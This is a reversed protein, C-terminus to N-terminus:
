IFYMNHTLVINKLISGIWIIINFIKNYFIIIIMVLYFACAINVKGFIDIDILVLKYNHKGCASNSGCLTKVISWMYNSLQYKENCNIKISVQIRRNWIINFIVLTFLHSGVHSKQDLHEFSTILYFSTLIICWIIITKLPNEGAWLFQLFSKM